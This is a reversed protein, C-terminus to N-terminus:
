RSGSERRVEFATPLDDLHDGVADNDSLLAHFDKDL